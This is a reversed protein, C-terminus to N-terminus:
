PVLKTPGQCLPACWDIGEVRLPDAREGSWTVTLGEAVLTARVERAVDLAREPDGGVAAFHVDLVGLEVADEIAVIDFFAMGRVDHGAARLARVEEAIQAIGGRLSSGYGQRLVIARSALAREARDLKACDAGAGAEVQARVRAIATDVWREVRRERAQGSLWRAVTPDGTLRDAGLEVLAERRWGVRVLPVIAALAAEEVESPPESASPTTGVSGTSPTVQAPAIRASADSLEDVLVAVHPQRQGPEFSLGRSLIRVLTETGPPVTVGWQGRAWRELAAPATLGDLPVEGTLLHLLAFSLEKVAAREISRESAALQVISRCIPPIAREGWWACWLTDTASDLRGHGFLARGDSRLGLQDVDVVWRHLRSPDVGGAQEDIALMWRQALSIWREVPMPRGALRVRAPAVDLDAELLIRGHARDIALIRQRRVMEGPAAREVADLLDDRQDDSLDPALLEEAVHAVGYDDRERPTSPRVVIRGYSTERTTLM